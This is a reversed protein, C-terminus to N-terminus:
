VASPDDPYLSARLEEFKLSLSEIGAILSRRIKQGEYNITQQRNMEGIVFALTEELRRSRLEQKINHVRPDLNRVSYGRWLKQIHVAAKVHVETYETASTHPHATSPETTQGTQRNTQETGSALRSPPSGVHGVKVTSVSDSIPQDTQFSASSQNSFEASDSVLILRRSAMNKKERTPSRSASRSRSMKPLSDSRKPATRINSVSSPSREQGIVQRILGRMDRRSVLPSGPTVPTSPASTNSNDWGPPPRNSPPQQLTESQGVASAPRDMHTTQKPSESVHSAPAQSSFTVHCLYSILKAQAGAAFSHTAPNSLMQSANQREELTVHQGDLVTLNCAWSLVYARYSDKHHTFHQYTVCPNNMMSLQELRRLDVLHRVQYLESIENEALSLISLNKPLYRPADKIDRIINGHLLLTKLSHLHSLDALSTITNDSLDLHKLAMNNHLGNIHRINNGSLNLWMLHHLHSVGEISCVSNEALNLVTLHHLNELGSIKILCNHTASLQVLNHLHSLNELKSISNQDLLLQRVEETCYTLEKNMHTVMRKSLDLKGAAAM